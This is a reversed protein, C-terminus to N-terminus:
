FQLVSAGDSYERRTVATHILLKPTRSPDSFYVRLHLAPCKRRLLFGSQICGKKLRSPALRALAVRGQHGRLGQRRRADRSRRLGREEQRDARPGTTFHRLDQREQRGGR